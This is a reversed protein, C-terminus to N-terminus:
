MQARPDDILACSKIVRLTVSWKIRDVWKLILLQLAEGMDLWPRRRRGGM